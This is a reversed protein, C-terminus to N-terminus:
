RAGQRILQFAPIMLGGGGGGGGAALFLLVPLFFVNTGEWDHRLELLIACVGFLGAGLLVAGTLFAVVAFGAWVARAAERRM